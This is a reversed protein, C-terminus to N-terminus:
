LNYIIYKKCTAKQFFEDFHHVNSDTIDKIHPSKPFLHWIFEFFIPPNSWRLTEVFDASFHPTKSWPFHICSKPAPM